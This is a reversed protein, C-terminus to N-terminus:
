PAFQLEIPLETAEITAIAIPHTVIAIQLTDPAPHLERARVVVHDRDREVAVIEVGHGGSPREGLAVCLLTRLEFDISPAARAPLRANDIREWLTQWQADTRAIHLGASLQAASLPHPVAETTLLTPASRCGALLLALVMPLCPWNM